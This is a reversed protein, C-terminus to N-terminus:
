SIKVEKLNEVEHIAPTGAKGKYKSDPREIHWLSVQDQGVLSRLPEIRDDVLHLSNFMQFPLDSLGVTDGERRLHDLIHEGKNRGIVIRTFRSLSPCLRLKIEQYAPDVATTLIVIRHDRNQELFPIVDPYLFRDHGLHTLALSNAAPESIGAAKVETLLEISQTEDSVAAILRAATQRDLGHQTMLQIFETYFVPSFLTRDFDLIILARTM